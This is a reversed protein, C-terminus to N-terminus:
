DPAVLGYTSAINIVSGSGAKAMMDGLVQCTLFVGTVNVDLMRRWRDVSYAEFTVPGENDRWSEVKDDIAANNVLIDLRGGGEDLLRRIAELSRRDTVDAAATVISAPGGDPPPVVARLRDLDADVAIVSAGAHHLAEVHQRGLLGAAGTVVATRGDLSFPSKSSDESM